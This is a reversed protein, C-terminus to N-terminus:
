WELLLYTVVGLSLAQSVLLVWYVFTPPSEEEPRRTIIDQLRQPFEAKYDEQRRRTKFLGRELHYVIFFGVVVALLSVWWMWVRLRDGGLANSVLAIIGAHIAVM